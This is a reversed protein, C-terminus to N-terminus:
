ITSLRFKTSWSLQGNIIIIKYGDSATQDLVSKFNMSIVRKSWTNFEKLTKFTTFPQNSLTLQIMDNSGKQQHNYDIPPIQKYGFKVHLETFTENMQQKTLGSIVTNNTESTYNYQFTKDNNIQLAITMGRYAKTRLTITKKIKLLQLLLDLEYRM